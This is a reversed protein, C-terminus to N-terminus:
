VIANVRTWRFRQTSTLEHQLHLERLFTEWAVQVDTKESAQIEDTMSLLPMVYAAFDQRAEILTKIATPSLVVRRTKPHYGPRTMTSEKETTIRHIVPQSPMSGTM